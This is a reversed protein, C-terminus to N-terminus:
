HRTSGHLAIKTGGWFKTGGKEDHVNPMKLPTGIKGSDICQWLDFNGFLARDGSRDHLWNQYHFQDIRVVDQM